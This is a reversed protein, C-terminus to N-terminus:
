QNKIRVNSAYQTPSIGVKKKFFKIFYDYSNFGSLKGVEKITYKCEELLIKAKEIRIDGLYESFGIDISDKFLRSLYTSGIGVEEAVDSLSIDKMYNNKIFTMAQMVYESDCSINDIYSLKILKEFSNIIWSEADNFTEINSLAEHPTISSIFIDSLEINSEKSIKIIINLLDYFVMKTGNICLNSNKITTFLQKLILMLTNLDGTNLCNIIQKEIDLSLGTLDELIGLDTIFNNNIVCNKGMYFKNDLSDVADAYSIPLSSFTNCLNGISFSVSIELLNKLCSSITNLITNTIHIIQAQSRINPFSLLIPFQKGSTAILIGNKHESLLENSINIISYELLARNKLINSDTTSTIEYNDIEMIIPLINSFGLNIDLLEIQKQIEKEDTYFGTLLQSIFKERLAFLNNLTNFGVTETLNSAPMSNKAQNLSDLLVHKNLNHKLVYDLAGNKLTGKVYKFDDYNSLIIIKIHKYKKYLIKSLQYGNMRPMKMDLIIIHPNHKEIMQLAQDGNSAEGCIAFGHEQWNILLKINTRVLLEDDVLLVKIM